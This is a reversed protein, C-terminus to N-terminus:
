VSQIAKVFLAEFRDAIKELDFRTEAWRRAAVGAKEARLPDNRFSLAALTFGDYDEPEVVVGAGSEVLIKAALNEAPAALVIPRGACLYSMIKSPVSYTGAGREIVALLVDGSALVDSMREFPQLPLLRMGAHDPGERLSDAGVGAAVVVVEENPAVREALHRLLEPNHKLALTGSYLFRTGNQLSNERAWSNDRNQLDIDGLVGWNPIVEIKARDIGWRDTQAHFSETIHLIRSARRMQRRELFRYWAGIAHGPGPIKRALIESAAISYFDQCWYIFPRREKYCLRVLAEQAETPTNGSIVVDPKQQAALAALECGYARDGNRRKLFNTKSYDIAKGLPSFSLQPPDGEIVNMVGKPGQDKVFWAHVVQHGRQALARSLEVQFPHGAFDHILIKM